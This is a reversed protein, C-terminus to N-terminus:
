DSVAQISTASVSLRTHKGAIDMLVIVRETSTGQQYIAEYGSLTGEVFVVKDGSQMPKDMLTQMGSENEYSRLTQILDDPISAARNGFKVIHTVGVTSRIPGWDDLEESLHIFLYRPFLATKRKYFTRGKRIRKEYLPLYAEYGQRTLNDLAIQEQSPKTYVLYWLRGTPESSAEQGM